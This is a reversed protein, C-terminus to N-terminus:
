AQANLEELVARDAESDSMPDEADSSSHPNGETEGGHETDGQVEQARANDSYNQSGEDNQGIVQEEAVSGGGASQEESARTADESSDVGASQEETDAAVDTTAEAGDSAMEGGTEAVSSAEDGESRKGLTGEAGEALSLQADDRSGKSRQLAKIEKSEAEVEWRAKKLQRDKYELAMRAKQLVEVERGLEKRLLANEKQEAVDASHQAVVKREQELRAQLEEIERELGCCPMRRRNLWM